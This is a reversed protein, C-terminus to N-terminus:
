AAGIRGLLNLRSYTLQGTNNAMTLISLRLWESADYAAGPAFAIWGSDRLMPTTGYNPYQSSTWVGIGAGLAADHAGFNANIAVGQSPHAQSDWVEGVVRVDLRLGAAKFPAWPFFAYQGTEKYGYNDTQRQGISAILVLPLGLISKEVALALAQIAAAGGAVPDTPVPYPLKLGASAALAEVDVDDPLVLETV